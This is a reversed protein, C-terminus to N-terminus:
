KGELEATCPLAVQCDMMVLVYGEISEIVFETSLANVTTVPKSSLSM